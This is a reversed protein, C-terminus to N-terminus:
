RLQDANIEIEENSDILKVKVKGVIVAVYETAGVQVRYMTSSESESANETAGSATQLAADANQQGQTDSASETAGSATQLAADANQQGQTDSASETAGSATQPAADTNQQGQ